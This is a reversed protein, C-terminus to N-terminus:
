EHRPTKKKKPNGGVMKKNSKETEEDRSTNTATKVKQLLRNSIQTFLTCSCGFATLPTWEHFRVLFWAGVSSLGILAILHLIRRADLTVKM